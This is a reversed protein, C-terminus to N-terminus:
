ISKLEWKPRGSRAVQTWRPAWFRDLPALFKRFSLFHASSKYDSLWSAGLLGGPAIWIEAEIQKRTKSKESATM